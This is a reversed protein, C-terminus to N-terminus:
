RLFDYYLKEEKFIRKMVTLDRVTIDCDSFAGGNDFRAFAADVLRDVDPQAEPDKEFVALLVTIVTQACLLVATERRQLKAGKERALYEKYERLVEQVPEPIKMQGFFAEREERDGPCLRHYYGACKCIEADMELTTAIRECFYGTHISQLYEKKNARRLEALKPHETDNLYQYLDRNPYLVRTAYYRIGVFLFIATLVMNLGPLIFQEFRLRTGATLIVGSMECILLCLLSLTMPGAIHFDKRLPLFIMVSFCGSVYYLFFIGVSGGALLTTTMLLLTGGFLGLLPTGYLGLLVFVPVLIWATNPLFVSLLSLLMSLVWVLYFRKLSKLLEAAPATFYRRIGLGFLAGGLCIFVLAQLLFIDETKRFSGVLYSGGALFLLGLVPPLYWWLSRQPDREISKQKEAKRSKM